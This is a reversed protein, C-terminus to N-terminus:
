ETLETSESESTEQQSESIIPLLSKLVDSQYEEPIDCGYEIVSLVNPEKISNIYDRLSNFYTTHYTIVHEMNSNLAIIEEPTYFRCSNGQSHYPLNDTQGSKVKLMLAQIMLQDETQLEYHETSTDKKVDFGRTIANHCEESMKSIVEARLEPLNSVATAPVFRESGWGSIVQAYDGEDLVDKLYAINDDSNMYTIIQGKSDVVKCSRTSVTDLKYMNM